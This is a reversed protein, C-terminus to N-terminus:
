RKLQSYYGAVDNIQADTLSNAILNMLLSQRTKDRYQKLALKLYDANRGSLSPFPAGKAPERIGHCHACVSAAREQGAYLNAAEINMTFFVAIFGFFYALRM